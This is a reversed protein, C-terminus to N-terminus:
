YSKLLKETLEKNQEILLTNQKILLSNQEIIMQNKELLEKIIDNDDNKITNIDGCMGKQKHRWLGSRDSYEKDCTKCVYKKIHHLGHVSVLKNHKKSKCHNNWHSKRDTQFDCWDCWFLEPM